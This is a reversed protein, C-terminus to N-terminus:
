PAESDHMRFRLGRGVHSVLQGDTWAGRRVGFGARCVLQRAARRLVLSSKPTGAGIDSVGDAANKCLIRGICQVKSRVPLM